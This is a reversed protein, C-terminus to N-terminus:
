GRAPDLLAYLSQGEQTVARGGPTQGAAQEELRRSAGGLEARVRPDLTEGVNVRAYERCLWAKIEAVVDIMILRARLARDEIAEDLKADVLIEGRCDARYGIDRRPLNEAAGVGKANRGGHHRSVHIGSDAQGSEGSRAAPAEIREINLGAVCIKRGAIQAENRQEEAPVSAVEM